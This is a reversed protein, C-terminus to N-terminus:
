DTSIRSLGLALWLWFITKVSLFQELSEERIRVLFQDLHVLTYGGAFLMLGVAAFVALPSYIWKLWPHIRKLVPEPDIGPLKFYLLSGLLARRRGRALASARDFLAAGQGAGDHSILGSNVLQTLMGSISERDPRAPGLMREAADCIEPLTRGDILGLLAHQAPSFRFYALSVPDKIIFCPEGGYLQPEVRLDRRVRFRRTLRPDPTAPSVTPDATSM